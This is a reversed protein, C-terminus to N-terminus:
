NGGKGRIPNQGREREREKSVEYLPNFHFKSGIDNGLRSLIKPIFCDSSPFKMVHTHKQKLIRFDEDRPKEEKTHTNKTLHKDVPSFPKPFYTDYVSRTNTRIKCMNRMM